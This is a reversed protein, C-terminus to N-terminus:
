ASIQRQADQPSLKGSDVQLAATQAVKAYAIFASMDRLHERVAYSRYAKLTCDVSARVTQSAKAAAHCRNLQRQQEAAADPLAAPDFPPQKGAAGLLTQALIAAAVICLAVNVKVQVNIRTKRM